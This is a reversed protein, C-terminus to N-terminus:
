KSYNVEKKGIKTRTELAISPKIASKLCGFENLKLVYWIFVIVIFLLVSM